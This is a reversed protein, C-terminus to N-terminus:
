EAQRRRQSQRVAELLDSAHVPKRLVRVLGLGAAEEPRFGGATVVVVPVDRANPLSRQLARFELGDMYPMWIDLIIVSPKTPVSQLLGIAEAGNAACVVEFGEDILLEAMVRRTAFDDEVLLITTRPADPRTIGSGDVLKDSPDPTIPM